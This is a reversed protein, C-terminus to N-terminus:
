KSDDFVYGRDLRFRRRRDIRRRVPKYGGVLVEAVVLVAVQRGIAVIALDDEVALVLLRLYLVSRALRDPPIIEVALPFTDLLDRPVRLTNGLRGNEDIRGSLQDRFVRVRLNRNRVLRRPIQGFVMEASRAHDGVAFPVDDGPSVKEREAFLDGGVDAGAGGDGGVLRCVVADALFEGAVLLVGFGAEVEGFRPHVLDPVPPEGGDIREKRASLTCIRLSEIAVGVHHVAREAM